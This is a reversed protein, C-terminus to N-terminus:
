LDGEDLAKNLDEIIVKLQPRYQSDKRFMDEWFTGNSFFDLVHDIRGISKDTLHEKVLNKLLQRCDNINKVLFNKDFTFDVEYFSIVTKM